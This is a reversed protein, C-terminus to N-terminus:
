KLTNDIIIFLYQVFENGRVRTDRTRQWLNCGLEHSFYICDNREAWTDFSPVLSGRAVEVHCGNLWPSMSVYKCLKTWVKMKKFKGHVGGQLRFFLLYTIKM